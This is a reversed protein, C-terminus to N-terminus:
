QQRVKVVTLKIDNVRSTGDISLTYGTEEVLQQFRQNFETLLKVEKRNAEIAQKEQDSLVIDNDITIDENEDKM